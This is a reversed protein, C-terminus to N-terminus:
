RYGWGTIYQQGNLHIRVSRFKSHREERVDRARSLTKNQILSTSFTTSIKVYEKQLTKVIKLYETLKSIGGVIEDPSIQVLSLLRAHIDNVQREIVSLSSQNNMM